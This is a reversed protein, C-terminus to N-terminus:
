CLAPTTKSRPSCNSTPARVPTNEVRFCATLTDGAYIAQPLYDTILYFPKKDTRASSAAPQTDAALISFALAAFMMVAYRM